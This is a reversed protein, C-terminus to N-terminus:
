LPEHCAVSYSESISGGDFIDGRKEIAVFIGAPHYEGRAIRNRIAHYHRMAEHPHSFVSHIVEPYGDNFVIRFVHTRRFGDWRKVSTITYRLKRVANKVWYDDILDKWIFEASSWRSNGFGQNPLSHYRATGKVLFCQFGGDPQRLVAMECGDPRLRETNWYLMEWLNM